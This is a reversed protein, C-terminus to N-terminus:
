SNVARDIMFKVAENANTYEIKIKPHQTQFVRFIEDAFAQGIMPVKDFDFVISTFKDLGTLVRRAQSRSIYVGSMTYLKIKIETKDFGYGSESDPNAYKKFVDNLHHTSETSIKFTVRTGRKNKKPKVLFVDKIKNNIILQYDHSDLIFLEGVKSTFFIGEGSHLKPATTTKGKLLDQIAELESKLKRKEMINRFVGVGSDNVIFSLIKNNISVEVEINKSQSHEIANNLMESFAYTFISKINENLKEILPFSKELSALVKHEELNKNVLNKTIKAPLLNAHSSAYAPLIYKANRTSGTKILKRSSVLQSVLLNAYQRSIHFKKAIESTKLVKESNALQLIQEITIMITFYNYVM